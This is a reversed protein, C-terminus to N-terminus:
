AVHVGFGTAPKMEKGARVKGIGAGDRYDAGGSLLTPRIGVVNRFVKNAEDAQEADGRYLDEMKKKDMHPVTLIQTRTSRHSCASHVGGTYYGFM